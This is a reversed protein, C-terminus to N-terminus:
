LQASIAFRLGSPDYTLTIQGGLDRVLLRELLRSGFGKTSPPAVMPGGSERWKLQLWGDSAEWDVSVQGGATSLAGYKTANTALEHLALSLTLAQRPPIDLDPGSVIVRDRSFADLSREVVDRLNAGSWSRSTLLDHARAMAIIRQDLAQRASPLDSASNLTQMSIAQITALTNKVRHSLENLLMRQREEAEKRETLDRSAGAIAVPKRDAGEGDFEVLGWASLWRWSGDIQRVRYEVDYRGDGNPDIAAAVRSWMLDLDEAHFKGKVGEEDHLFPGETLGYLRQANEDYVCINDAFTYRWTGMQSATMALDFTRKHREFTERLEDMDSPNGAPESQGSRPASSRRSAPITMDHREM